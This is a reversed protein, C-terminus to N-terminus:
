MLMPDHLMHLPSWAELASKVLLPSSCTFSRPASGWFSGCQDAACLQPVVEIRIYPSLFIFKAHPIGARQRIYVSCVSSM